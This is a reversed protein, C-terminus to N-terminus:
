PETPPFLELLEEAHRILLRRPHNFDLAAASVRGLPTLGVIRYGDWRFHDKWRDRRPNFLPTTENSEPDTAETRDSKHLNCSPCALALNDPDDTGGRSRPIIHEVHFNAGQLSQHMRCYECRQGARVEVLRVVEEWTM